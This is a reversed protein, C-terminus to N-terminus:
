VNELHKQKELLESLIESATDVCAPCSLTGNGRISRCDLHSAKNKFKELAEDQLEKNGQFAILAAHIAGCNGLPARGGGNMVNEMIIEDSIQLEEQHHRLVAQACNLGETGHYHKSAKM